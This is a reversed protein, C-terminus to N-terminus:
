QGRYYGKQADRPPSCLLSRCRFLQFVLDFRVSGPQLRSPDEGNDSGATGTTTERHPQGVREEVHKEFFLQVQPRHGNAHGEKEALKEAQGCREGRWRQDALEARRQRNQRGTDNPSHADPDHAGEDAQRHGHRHEQHRAERLDDVVRRILIEGGLYQGPAVPRPDLTKADATKL